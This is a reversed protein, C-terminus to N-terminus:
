EFCNNFSTPLGIILLSLLGTTTVSHGKWIEAVKWCPTENLYLKVKCSAQDLLMSSSCPTPQRRWWENRHTEAGYKTHSPLEASSIQSVLDESSYKSEQTSNIKQPSPSTFLGLTLLHWFLLHHSRHLEHHSTFCFLPSLSFHFQDKECSLSWWLLQAMSCSRM